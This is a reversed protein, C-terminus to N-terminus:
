CDKYNPNQDGIKMANCHPASILLFPSFLSNKRSSFALSFVMPFYQSDITFIIVPAAASWLRGPRCCSAPRSNSYCDVEVHNRGRIM